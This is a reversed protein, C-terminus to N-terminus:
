LPHPYPFPVQNTLAPKSKWAYYKFLGWHLHTHPVMATKFTNQSEYYTITPKSYYTIM